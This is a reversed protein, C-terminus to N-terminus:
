KVPAPKGEPRRRELFTGRLISRPTKSYAFVVRNSPPTESLVDFDFEWATGVPFISAAAASAEETAEAGVPVIDCSVDFLPAGPVGGNQRSERLKLAFPWAFREIAVEPATPGPNADSPGPLSLVHVVGTVSSPFREADLRSLAFAEMRLSIGTSDFRVEHFLRRNMGDRLPAGDAVIAGPRVYPDYNRDYERLGREIAFPAACLLAVVCLFGVFFRLIPSM